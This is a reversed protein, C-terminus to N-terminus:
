LPEHLYTHKCQHRAIMAPDGMVGIHVHRVFTQFVLNRAATPRM